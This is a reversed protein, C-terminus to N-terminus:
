RGTGSLVVPITKFIIKMDVRLNWDNIYQMDMNMWDTFSIDNRNPTSQWYCTIGPRVSFRRRLWDESFKSFDRQALPRPGVISMDGRLVNFLQPLEDIGYKRLVRGVRSVRPDERIKFVAGDMENAQELEKQMQEAGVVMTRLKYLNFMRKHFGIRKQWYFVPGGDELRIAVAALVLVPLSLALLMSAFVIDFFRKVVLRWDDLPVVDFLVGSYDGMRTPSIYGMKTDFINNMLQLAIGQNEAVKIINLIQNHYSRIPLFVVGRDVVNERVIRQFDDLRAILNISFGGYNDEDLFGLVNYGLFKNKSILNYFGYAHHNTGVILLNINDTFRSIFNKIVFRAMVNFIVNLLFAICVYYLYFHISFLSTSLALQLIYICFCDFLLVFVSRALHKRISYLDYIGHLMGFVAFFSFHVILILIIALVFVAFLRINLIYLGSDALLIPWASVIAICAIFAVIASIIDFSRIASQYARIRTELM